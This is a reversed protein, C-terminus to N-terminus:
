FIGQRNVSNEFVVYIIKSLFRLIAGGTFGQLVSICQLMNQGDQDFVYCASPNLSLVM